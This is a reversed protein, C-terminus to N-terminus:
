LICKLNVINKVAKQTSYYNNYGYDTIHVYSWLFFTNSQNICNSGVYSLHYNSM